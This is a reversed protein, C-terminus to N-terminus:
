EPDGQVIGGRIFNSLRGRTPQRRLHETAKGEDTKTASVALAAKCARWALAGGSITDPLHGEDKRGYVDAVTSYLHETYAAKLAPNSDDRPWLLQGKEIAAIYESLMEDRERGTFVFHEIRGQPIELLDAVVGGVGTNDHCAAGGYLVIRDNLIKAMVPWPKRQTREIAVVRAPKVDKRITPVVTHNVKKAWDAGTGYEADPQPGELELGEVFALQVCEPMIARGEASPQQLEVETQWALTTMISRKREIEETSVWGHPERTEELCWEYVPWGKAAAEQIAWTMTGNPYQHTSSLVVQSLIWGKSMPQGLASEVIARKCEDVEDLRLRQPHPGRVSAQSAKLAKITNGGILKQRQGNPEGVLHDRPANPTNWLSEISELVRKSQEGSGGLVNVDAKMTLAETLALLALTFSKGGFGRSAKWVAVPSRAFYADHFAEWPTRHNSCCRLNPM